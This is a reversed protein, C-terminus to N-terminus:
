RRRDPSQQTRPHHLHNFPRNLFEKGGSLLSPHPSSSWKRRKEQNQPHQLLTSTPPPCPLGALIGNSSSSSLGVEIFDFYAVKPGACAAASSLSFQQNVKGSVNVSTTGDRSELSAM